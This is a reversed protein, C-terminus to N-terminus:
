LTFEAKARCFNNNYHRDSGLKDSWRDTFLASDVIATPTIFDEKADGSVRIMTNATWIVSMSGATIKLSLDAGLLAMSSLESDWGGVRKFVDSKVALCAGHLASVQQDLVLRSFYGKSARESGRFSLLIPSDCNAESDVILAGSEILDDTSIFKPGVLGVSPRVSQAAFVSLWDDSMPSLGAKIFCLVEGNLKSVVANLRRGLGTSPYIESCAEVMLTSVSYNRYKTMARIAMVSEAIVAQNSGHVIVSIKPAM